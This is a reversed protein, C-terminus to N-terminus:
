YRMYPNDEREAGINTSAGHGPYVLTEDPLKSLKKVSEMLDSYSCSPLDTRGVSGRFLTDGSFLLNDCLYCVGGPSHGPTEIVQFSMEGSSIVDGNSILVDAKADTNARGYLYGFMATLSAEDSYLGCEDLPHVAIKAGTIDRIQTAASVHDFHRHTLLIFKIKSKNAYVYDMLKQEPFGPDIIVASNGDDLIYCNSSLAGCVVTTLNM